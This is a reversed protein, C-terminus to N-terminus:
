QPGDVAGDRASLSAPGPEPLATFVIRRNRARGEDTENDAVPYASGYGRASLTVHALAPDAALRARVAEARAESLRDNVEAPGSSDTHGGIEFAMSPCDRLIAAVADVAEAGEDGLTDAGPAFIIATVALAEGVRDTCASAAEAAVRATEAAAAIADFRLAIAATGVGHESFLAEAKATGDPDDTWGELAVSDPTVALSGEKMLTLATVGALVRGPWGDPLTPDIVTTNMVQEHGFKAAAFSEIAARSMADQVPGTLRVSGDPLLIADFRPAYGRTGDPRTEVRPPATVELAMVEPLRAELDAAVAALTAPAIGEPGTLVAGIDAMAFGGGGLARVAGIGAAAAAAWEPTPAGLGLACGGDGDLGAARAIRAAEAETEAACVRLHGGGDDLRYEVAFPAIVRRPAAIEHAVTVNAPRMAALRDEIAARDADSDAVTQVAVHGPAISIKARPLDVLLRLGFDLAPQWGEPAPHAVGELMDLVAGDLGGAGLAAVIAAAGADDPALGIVSVEGENRLLEIAFSPAEPPRAALATADEVRRPDVIQRILEAVEFRSAEDPAIGRLVVRLGDTEVVAWSAGAAALASRAQAAAAQEVRLAAAEALWWSGAAVGALATLAFTFARLRM